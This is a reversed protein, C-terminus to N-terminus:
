EGSDREVQLLDRARYLRGEIARVSCGLIEACEKQSLEEFAFLIVASRLKEPLQMVAERMKERQDSQSAMEDPRTMPCTCSANKPDLHLTVREEKARRSRFRDRCLNLAIRYIWTTFKGQKRYRPIAEYARVFADQTVEKADERNQLWRYCFRYITEQHLEVLRCFADDDGSAAAQILRDELADSCSKARESRYEAFGFDISEIPIDM